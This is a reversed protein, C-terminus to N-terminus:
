SHPSLAADVSRRVWNAYNLMKQTSEVMGDIDAGSTLFGYQQGYVVKGIVDLSYFHMWTALNCPEGTDAFRCGIQDLWTSIVDDVYPEYRVLSTVSFASNVARKIRDHYPKDLTSFMSPVARGHATAASVFYYGSKRFDKGPGLIDPIVKPDAFSLKNPAIRVVDGYTDHWRLWASRQYDRVADYVHWLDTMSALFPGPYRSLGKQFRQHLLFASVILVVAVPWYQLSVSLSDKVIM